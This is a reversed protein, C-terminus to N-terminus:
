TIIPLGMEMSFYIITQQSDGEDWRVEEVAVLDFNCKESKSAVTKLSGAMCLSRVNWTVFRMDMKWHGPQKLSNM